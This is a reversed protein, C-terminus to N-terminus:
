KEVRESWMLMLYRPLTSPHNGVETVECAHLARVSKWVSPDNPWDRAGGSHLCCAPRQFFPRQEFLCVLLYNSVVFM